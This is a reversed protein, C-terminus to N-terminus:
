PAGVQTYQAALEDYRGELHRYKRRLRGAHGLLADTVTARAAREDRLSTRAEQVHLPTRLPEADACRLM